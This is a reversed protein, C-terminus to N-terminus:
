LSLISDVVRNLGNGDFVQTSEKNFSRRLEFNEIMELLTKIILDKSEIKDLSILKLINNKELESSFYQQHQNQPLIISPVGLFCLEYMTNGGSCVALDSEIMLDTLSKVNTRITLNLNSEDALAEIQTLQTNSPGLHVVIEISHKYLINLNGLLNLFYTSYNAPDSGGFSLLIRKVKPKVTIPSKKILDYPLICFKPGLCSGSIDIPLALSDQFSNYNIIKNSFNDKIQTEHFSIIELKTGRLYKTYYDPYDLLDSVISVVNFDQVTKKILSLEEEANYQQPLQITEFDGLLSEVVSDTNVIFVSEKGEKKLQNALERCRFVHGLGIQHSGNLRFLFYFSEPM